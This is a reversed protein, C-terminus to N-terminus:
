VLKPPSYYFEEYKGESKFKEIEEPTPLFWDKHRKEKGKIVKYIPTSSLKEKKIFQKVNDIYYIKEDGKRLFTKVKSKRGGSTGNKLYSYKTKDRIQQLYEESKILEGNRDYLDQITKFRDWKRKMIYPADKYMWEMIKLVKKNGTTSLVYANKYNGETKYLSRQVICSNVGIDELVRTLVEGFENTVCFSVCGKPIKTKNNIVISGDGEFYGRVFSHVFDDPVQSLLPFKLTLSKRAFMGLNALDNQIKKSSISLRCVPFLKNNTKKESFTIPGSYLMTKKIWELYDLDVTNLSIEFVGRESELDSVWGDAAFFGLIQAKEHSDIKEFFSEDFSYKRKSESATRLKIGYKVLKRMISVGSLGKIEGIERPCLKRNIYLDVLDEKSIWVKEKCM